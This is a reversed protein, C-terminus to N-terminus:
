LSLIGSANALVRYGLDMLSAALVGELGLAGLCCPVFLSPSSTLTNCISSGDQMMAAHLASTICQITLAQEAIEMACEHLLSLDDKGKGENGKCLAVIANAADLCSEEM